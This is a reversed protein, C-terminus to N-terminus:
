INLWGSWLVKSKLVPLLEPEENFLGIQCGGTGSLSAYFAGNKLLAKENDGLEPFKGYVKDSFDNTLLTQWDQPNKLASLFSFDRANPVIGEYAEKTSIQIRSFMLVAFYKRNSAYPVMTEGRGSVIASKNEIFFGCDSGIEMALNEKEAITLKLHCFEDVANILAGVNGSGGGIGGGSPIRKVLHIQLPPIAYRECMLLYCKWVLNKEKPISFDANYTILDATQAHVIELTDFFPVHVFLSRVNHYGDTRRETVWLGINIKCGSQVLM